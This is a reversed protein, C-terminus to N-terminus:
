YFKKKEHNFDYYFARRNTTGSKSRNEKMIILLKIAIFYCKLKEVSFFIMFFFLFKVSLKAHKM